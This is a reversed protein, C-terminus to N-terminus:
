AEPRSNGFATGTQGTVSRLLGLGGPTDISLLIASARERNAQEIGSNLYSAEFPDVVDELKLHVVKDEPGAEANLAGLMILGVIAMCSVRV